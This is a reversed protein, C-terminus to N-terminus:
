NKEVIKIYAALGAEGGDSELLQELQHRFYKVDDLRESPELDRLIQVAQGIRKEAMRLAALKEHKRHLDERAVANNFQKSGIKM